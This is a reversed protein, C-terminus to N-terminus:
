VKRLVFNIAKSTIIDAREYTLIMLIGTLNGGILAVTDPKIGFWREGKDQALLDDIYGIKKVMEECNEVDASRIMREILSNKEEILKERVEKKLM